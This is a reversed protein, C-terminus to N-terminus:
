VVNLTMPVVQKVLKVLVILMETRKGGEVYAVIMLYMPQIAPIIVVVLYQEVGM